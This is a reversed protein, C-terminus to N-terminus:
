PAGHLVLARQAAARGLVSGSLAPALLPVLPSRFLGLMELAMGRVEGRLRAERALRELEPACTAGLVSLAFLGDQVARDTAEPAAETVRACATAPRRRALHFLARERVREDPDLVAVAWRGDGPTAGAVVADLAQVRVGDYIGSTHRNRYGVGRRILRSASDLAGPLALRVAHLAAIWAAGSRDAPDDIQAGVARLAGADKLGALAVQHLAALHPVGGASRLHPHADLAHLGRLLAQRARARRGRTSAQAPARDADDLTRVLVLIRDFARLAMGHDLGRDTRGTHRLLVDVDDPDTGFAASLWEGDCTAEWTGSYPGTMVRRVTRRLPEEGLGLRTAGLLCHTHSLRMPVGTGGALRQLVPLARLERAAVLYPLLHRKANHLDAVTRQRGLLDLAYRGAAAADLRGLAALVDEWLMWHGSAEIERLFGPLVAATALDGLAALAVAAEGRSRLKSVAVNTGQEAPLVALGLLARLPAAAEPLSWLGALRAAHDRRDIIAHDRGARAYDPQARLAALLDARGRVPGLCRHDLHAVDACILHREPFVGHNGAATWYAVGRSPAITAAALGVLLCAARRSADPLRTLFRDIARM